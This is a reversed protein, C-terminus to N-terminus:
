MFVWSSYSCADVLDSKHQVSLFGVHTVKNFRSVTQNWEIPYYFKSEQYITTYYLVINCFACYIQLYFKPWILFEQFVVMGWGLPRVIPTKKHTIQLSYVMIYWSNNGRQISFFLPMHKDIREMECYSICCQENGVRRQDINNCKMQMRSAIMNHGYTM